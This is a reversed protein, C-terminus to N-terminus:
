ATLTNSAVRHLQQMIGCVCGMTEAICLSGIGPVKRGLRLGSPSANSCLMHQMRASVTPLLRPAGLQEKLVQKRSVYSLSNGRHCLAKGDVALMNAALLTSRTVIPHAAPM